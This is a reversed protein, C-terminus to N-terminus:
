TGGGTAAPNVPAAQAVPAPPPVEPQVPPATAEAAQKESSRPPDRFMPGAYADYIVLLNLVGAIVTYVWGLDWRKSGNRQLDNLEDETPAREFKGFVPGTEKQPDYQVYQYAAPWAAVGIWFQGLFQPRYVVAKLTGEVQQPGIVVPPLQSTDPLWVNRWQGMWMGYFFLLYLGLFFLLGKGIRGQYVQGLGPILLSLGGALLDTKVPPLPPDPPATADPPTSPM